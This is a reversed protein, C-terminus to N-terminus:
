DDEGSRSSIACGKSIKGLIENIRRPIRRTTDTAATIASAVPIALRSKDASLADVGAKKHGDAGSYDRWETKSKRQGQMRTIYDTLYDTEGYTKNLAIEIEPLYGDDVLYKYESHGAVIVTKYNKLIGPDASRRKVKACIWDLRHGQSSVQEVTCGVQACRNSM